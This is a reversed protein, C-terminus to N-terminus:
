FLNTRTFRSRAVRARLGSRRASGGGHEEFPQFFFEELEFDFVFLAADRLLLIFFCFGGQVVGQLSSELAFGGLLHSSLQSGGCCGQLVPLGLRQLVWPLVVAQAVM